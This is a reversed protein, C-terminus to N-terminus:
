EKIGTKDSLPKTTAGRLIAMVIGVVFIFYGMQETTLVNTFLGQNAQLFGLIAVLHAIILTKSKHARTIIHSLSM